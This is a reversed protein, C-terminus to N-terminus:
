EFKYKTFRLIISYIVVINEFAYEHVDMLGHAIRNRLNQGMKESLVFKMFIRDEEAFGTPRDPRDQLDAFIDDINKEMVIGGEKPKFTAIGIRECMYRLTAEVKLTLSDAITVSNIEYKNDDSWKKLEEFLLRLPPKIIDLPKIQMITGNYNRELPEGLWSAQLYDVTKSYDIKGAKYSELFYYVLWQIGIQFHFDFTQWFAFQKKEEEGDYNAVTNGFKDAVTSAFLQMSISEQLSKEASTKITELNSFMPSLAVSTLIEESTKGSIEKDIKQKVENVRDKDLEQGVTGFIGTGRIEQFRDELRKINKEDKLERYIRLAKEVFAIAALQRPTNEAEAALGEYLQAKKLKYDMFKLGAKVDLDASTDVIYIAGWLDSKEKVEMGKLNQELITQSNFYPKLVKYNDILIRSIDLLVRLTDKRNLDWNRHTDSLWKSIEEVKDAFKSVIALTMASKITRLMHLGYRAGHKEELSKKKYHTALEFLESCLQKKFDNHRSFATPKQFYLILGFETKAFLNKTEKYRKEIHEFDKDDFTSIDPWVFPIDEGKDNKQIGEMQWNLGKFSKSGEDFNFSKRLAFSQREIESLKLEDKSGRKDLEENVGQLLKNIEMENEVDFNSEDLKKHFKELSSM